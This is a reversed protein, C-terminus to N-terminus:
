SEPPNGPGSKSRGFDGSFLSPLEGKVGRVQRLVEYAALVSREYQRDRLQSWAENFHFQAQEVAPDRFVIKAWYLELQAVRIAIIANSASPGRHISLATVTGLVVGSAALCIWLKFPALTEM